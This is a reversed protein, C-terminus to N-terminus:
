NTTANEKGSGWPDNKLGLVSPGNMKEHYVVASGKGTFRCGRHPYVLLLKQKLQTGRGLNKAPEFQDVRLRIGQEPRLAAEDIPFFRLAIALVRDALTVLFFFYVRDRQQLRQARPFPPFQKPKLQTAHCGESSIQGM